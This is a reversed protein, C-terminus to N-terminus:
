DNFTNKAKVNVDHNQNGLVYNCKASLEIEGVSYNYCPQMVPPNSHLQAPIPTGARQHEKILAYGVIDHRACIYITFVNQLDLGSNEIAEVKRRATGKGKAINTGGPLHFNTFIIYM